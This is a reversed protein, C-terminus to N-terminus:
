WRMLVALIFGLVLVFRLCVGIKFCGGIVVLAVFQLWGLLLALGYWCLGFGFLFVVLWGSIYYCSYLVVLSCAYDFMFGFFVVYLWAVDLYVLLLECLCCLWCAFRCCFCVFWIFCVLGLLYVLYVFVLLGHIRLVVMCLAILLAVYFWEVWGGCCYVGFCGVTGCFM